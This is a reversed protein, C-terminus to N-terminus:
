RTAQLTGEIDRRRLEQCGSVHRFHSSKRFPPCCRSWRLLRTAQQGMPRRCLSHRCNGCLSTRAAPANFRLVQPLVLPTRFATRCQESDRESGPLRLAHVAAVPANRIGHWGADIRVAYESPRGSRVTKAPGHINGGLLRLAERALSDSLPNKLRKSTYAEIAHVM